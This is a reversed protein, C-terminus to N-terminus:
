TNSATWPLAGSRAPLPRALGMAKSREAARMSSCMPWGSGARRTSDATRRVSSLPTPSVRSRPPVPVVAVRVAAMMSFKDHSEADGQDLAAAHAEILDRGHLANDLLRANCDGPVLM